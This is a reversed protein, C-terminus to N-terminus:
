AFFTKRFKNENDVRFFTLEDANALLVLDGTRFNQQQADLGDFINEDFSIWFAGSGGHAVKLTNSLANARSKNIFSFPAKHLQESM